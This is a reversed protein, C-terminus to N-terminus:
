KGYNMKKYQEVLKKKAKSLAVKISARSGGTHHVMEDISMGEDVKMLMYLRETQTLTDYLRQKIIKEDVMEVASSASEGGVYDDRVLPETTLKRKRYRSICINKTIKVLLAKPNTLPYGKQILEWFAILAEEAVDEADLDIAASRCFQNALRILDGKVSYYIHEFEQHTM